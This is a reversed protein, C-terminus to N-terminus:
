IHFRMPASKNEYEADQAQDDARRAADHRSDQARPIQLLNVRALHIRVPATQGVGPANAAHDGRDQKDEPDNHANHQGRQADQTGGHGAM